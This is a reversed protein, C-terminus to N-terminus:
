FNNNINTCSNFVNVFIIKTNNGKNFISTQPLENWISICMFDSRQFHLEWVVDTLLLLSWFKIIFFYVM